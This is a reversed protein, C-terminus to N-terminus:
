GPLRAEGGLAHVLDSLMRLLEGTMLAFDIDFQEGADEVQESAGAKEIDLFALRKIQLQETLVFSIRDQWTLGLKTASKGAAIHERIERGELAHRVYRVTPKGEDPSQLELDQDITFGSPADGGALWQTMAATPSLQTALPTAPVEDFASRLAELAEQAKKPAAANIVLLGSQPAIWIHTSRRRTLAKPLLEETVEEKIQRMQKRGVPYPQRNAVQEAREQAVQRIVSAPLLKQEVGLELLWQQALRHVYVEADRPCLWGRSEMEFSGCRQLRKRALQGELDDASASWPMPLRYVVLNKFWM